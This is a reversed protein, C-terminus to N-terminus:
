RNCANVFSDGFSTLYNEWPQLEEIKPDHPGDYLSFNQNPALLGLRLLNGLQEETFAIPNETYGKRYLNRNTRHLEELIKVEESSLQSLISPYVHSTLNKSTDIYNVFLNAWKEQLREDEELSVGQLYPYLAKLDIQRTELGEKDVIENAKKFNRIQNKLRRNKLSDALQEGLETASPGIVRVLFEKLLDLGKEIVPINLNINHDAM